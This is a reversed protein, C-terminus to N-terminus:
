KFAELLASLRTKRPPLRSAGRTGLIIGSLWMRQRRAHIGRETRERKLRMRRKEIGARVAEIGSQKVYTKRM